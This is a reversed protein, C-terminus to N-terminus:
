VNKTIGGIPATQAATQARIAEMEKRVKEEVLKQMKAEHEIKEKELEQAEWAVMGQCFNRYALTVVQAKVPEKIVGKVHLVKAIHIAYLYEQETVSISIVKRNQPLCM